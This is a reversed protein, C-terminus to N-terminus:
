SNEDAAERDERSLDVPREFQEVAEIRSLRVRYYSMLFGQFEKVMFGAPLGSRRGLAMATAILLAIAMEPTYRASLAEAIEKLEDAQQDVWPDREWSAALAEPCQACEAATM